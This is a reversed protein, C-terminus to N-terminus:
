LSLFSSASLPCRGPGQKFRSQLIDWTPIKKRLICWLFLRAKKPCKLKLLPKAWWEPNAWGKKKMLFAYGAKPSYAGNEAHAWVLQDPRDQIRVNSRKLEQLFSRWENRWRPDIELEEELKWAQGWITSQGMIAIQNLGFIGKSDLHANLEPSLAFSENCGVWPDRGIRVNEGNGVQWALGQEIDKFAEVTAKWIVSFNRGKKKTNRIWDELPMPDIYKRKVVKTWLNEATILRWGSKAALSSSFDILNKIGWGGWYKPRAIKDWSVWPLVSDEKSGSWLFRSCLQKIKHLIGKPIWTLAAWFVPMAQLVSNVLTL